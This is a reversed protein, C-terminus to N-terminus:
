QARGLGLKRLWADLDYPDTESVLGGKLSGLLPAMERAVYVDGSAQALAGAKLRDVEAQAKSYELDALARKEREYLDAESRLIRAKNVGDVRLTEIKADWEASVQELKAKAEALRGAQENFKEEQLQLNKDFIEKDIRPDVYTYRRLLVGEVSVGYDKLIERMKKESERLATERLHPDYFQAAHLVSLSRNLLDAGVTVIHHRWKESDVGLKGVLDAPGGHPEQGDKVVGAYFRVLISVDVEVSAGDATTILLASGKGVRAPDKRIDFVQVGQPVFHIKSLFPISGHYGPPLGEPSFGQRPGMTIQRVGLNGPPVVYGFIYFITTVAVVLLVVLYLLGKLASGSESVAIRM